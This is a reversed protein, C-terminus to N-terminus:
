SQLERLSTKWGVGGAGTGNFGAASVDTLRASPLLEMAMRPMEEFMSWCKKSTATQHLDVHLARWGPPQLMLTLKPPASAINSQKTM